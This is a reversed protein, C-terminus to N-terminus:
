ESMEVCNYFGDPVSGTINDNNSLDLKELLGSECINDPIQSSFKNDNLSLVILEPLLGFENSIDGNFSNYGVDIIELTLNCFVIM